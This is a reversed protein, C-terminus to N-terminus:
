CKRRRNWLALFIHLKVVRLLSPRAFGSNVECDSAFDGLRQPNLIELLYTPNYFRSMFRRISFCHLSVSFCLIPHFISVSIQGTFSFFLFVQFSAVTWWNRRTDFITRTAIKLFLVLAGLLFHINVELVIICKDVLSSDDYGPPAVPFVVSFVDTVDYGHLSIFLHGDGTQRGFGLMLGAVPQTKSRGALRIVHPTPLFCQIVRHTWPSLCSM